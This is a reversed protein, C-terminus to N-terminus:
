YPCSQDTCITECVGGRSPLLSYGDDHLYDDLDYLHVMLVMCEGEMRAWASVKESAVMVMSSEYAADTEAGSRTRQYDDNGTCEEM